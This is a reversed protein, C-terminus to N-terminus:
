VKAKQLQAIRKNVHRLQASVRRKEALLNAMERDLPVIHSGPYNIYNLRVDGNTMRQGTRENRVNQGFFEDDEGLGNLWVACKAGPCMGHESWRAHCGDHGNEFPGHAHAAAVLTKM